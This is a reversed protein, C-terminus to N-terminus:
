NPTRGTIYNSAQCLIHQKRITLQAEALGTQTTNLQIKVVLLTAFDSFPGLRFHGIHSDNDNDSRNRLVINLHAHLYDVRFINIILKLERDGYKTDGTRMQAQTLGYGYLKWKHCFEMSQTSGDGLGRQSPVYVQSQLKKLQSEGKVADWRKSLTHFVVRTRVQSYVYNYM